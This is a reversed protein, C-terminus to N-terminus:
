DNTTFKLFTPCINVLKHNKVDEMKSGIWLFAISYAPCKNKLVKGKLM